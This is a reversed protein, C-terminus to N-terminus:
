GHAIFSMLAWFVVCYVIEFTLTYKRLKPILLLAGMIVGASAFVVIARQMAETIQGAFLLIFPAVLMTFGVIGATFEHIKKSRGSSAPVWVFIMEAVFSVAVLAYFYWPAAALPGVWFWIFSYYLPVCITMMGAFLQTAHKDAAITQSISPLLAGNRTRHTVMLWAVVATVTAIVVVDFYQWFQVPESPIM